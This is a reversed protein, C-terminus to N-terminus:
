AGSPAASSAPDRAGIRAARDPDESSPAVFHRGQGRSSCNRSAQFREPNKESVAASKFTRALPVRAVPPRVQARAGSWRRARLGSQRPRLATGISRSGSYLASPGRRRRRKVEPFSQTIMGATGSTTRCGSVQGIGQSRILARPSRDIRAQAGSLVGSQSGAMLFGSKM